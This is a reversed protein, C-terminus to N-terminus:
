PTRRALMRRMVGHREADGETRDEVHDRRAEVEEARAEDAAEAAIREV